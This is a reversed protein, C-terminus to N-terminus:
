VASVHSPRVRSFIAARERYRQAIRFVDEQWTTKKAEYDAAARGLDHLQQTPKM